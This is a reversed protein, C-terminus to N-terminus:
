AWAGGSIAGDILRPILQEAFYPASRSCAGAASKDAAFEEGRHSANRAVLGLTQPESREDVPAENIKTM